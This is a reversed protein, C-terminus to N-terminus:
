RPWGLAGCYLWAMLADPRKGWERIAVIAADLEAPTAWGQGVIVERFTPIGLHDAMLGTAWSTSEVDGYVEPTQAVGRTRAFGAELMLSRIHRSSRANGGEHAIVGDALSWFLTLEPCEPSIVITGHDDDSVAALGDPRLVRRMERLARVPERLYMLVANSYVVDFSADDFPLAYVSATFFEANDLQREACSRQAAEVQGADFDVGVVRHPGFNAALDLAISGVGCGADLLDMGPRLHPLLFPLFTSADRNAVMRRQVSEEIVYRQDVSGLTLPGPAGPM